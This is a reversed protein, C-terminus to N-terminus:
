LLACRTTIFTYYRVQVYRCTDSRVLDPIGITTITSLGLPTKDSQDIRDYCIPEDSISWDHGLACFRIQDCPSAIDRIKVQFILFTDRDAAIPCDHCEYCITSPTFATNYLETSCTYRYAIHPKDYGTNDYHIITTDQPLGRAINWRQHTHNNGTYLIRSIMGPIIMLFLPLIKLYGGLLTGSKAHSINKAALCRQVM